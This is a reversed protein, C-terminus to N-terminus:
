NEQNNKPPYHDPFLIALAQEPTEICYILIKDPFNKQANKSIEQLDTNADPVVIELKASLGEPMNKLDPMNEKPIIVGKFGQREAALLKAKLGGIPYVAKRTLPLEGTMAIRPMLSIGKFLSFVIAYNTLGASPGDKPTAASDYHVHLRKGEDGLRDIAVQISEGLVTALNGSFIHEESKGSANDSIIKAEAFDIDGNGRSDVTLIPGVGPPLNEIDGLYKHIPPDGLLEEIDKPTIVNKPKIKTQEPQEGTAVFSITIKRLISQIKKETSRVGPDNTYDQIITKLAADSFEPIYGAIEKKVFNNQSIGCEDLQKPVLHRKSIQLKEEWDYGDLEICEMRDFLAPLITDKINATAIFFVQSLDIPFEPGFYHDTFEYNHEPDMVELLAAAPDGRFDHGIKDIEDFMCVPNLSGAKTLEQIIRSPLAGIYTRRHGRIEAEDRMGGLSIRIFKRGLANAISEGISTKGTGPPGVLCLIPCKSRPNLRKVSLFEVIRDKVRRLGYHDNELVKHILSFDKTDETRKSWPMKVLWKIYLDLTTHEASLPPLTRLINHHGRIKEKIEPPFDKISKEFEEQEAEEAPKPKNTPVNKSMEEAEKGQSPSEFVRKFLESVTEYLVITLDLRKEISLEEFIERLAFGLNPLYIYPNLRSAEVDIFFGVNEATTKGAINQLINEQLMEAEDSWNYFTKAILSALYRLKRQFEISQFKEKTPNEEKCSAWAVKLRNNDSITALPIIRMLYAYAILDEGDTADKAHRITALTGIRCNSHLVFVFDSEAILALEEDPKFFPQVLGPFPFMESDDPNLDAPMIPLYRPLEPGTEM